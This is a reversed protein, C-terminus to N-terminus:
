GCVGQGVAEADGSECFQPRFAEPDNGPYAPVLFGSELTAIDPDHNFNSDGSEVPTIKGGGM